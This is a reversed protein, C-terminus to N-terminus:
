PRVDVDAAPSGIESREGRDHAASAEIEADREVAVAVPHKGDVLTSLREVAVLDESHEREMEANIRHGDRRHRVQAKVAQHLLSADPDDDGVDAVAVDELREAALPQQEAALLGPM